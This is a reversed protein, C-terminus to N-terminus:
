HQETPRSNWLHADAAPWCFLVSLQGPSPHEVWRPWKPGSLQSSHSATPRPPTHPATHWIPVHCNATHPQQLLAPPTSFLLSSAQQTLNYLTHHVATHQEEGGGGLRPQAQAQCRVPHAQPLPSLPSRRKKGVKCPSSLRTLIHKTKQTTSSAKPTIHHSSPKGLSRAHM